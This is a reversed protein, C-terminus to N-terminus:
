KLSHPIKKEAKEILSKDIMMKKSLDLFSEAKINHNEVAILNLSDLSRELIKIFLQKLNSAKAGIYHETGNDVLNKLQRTIVGFDVIIKSTCKDYELM